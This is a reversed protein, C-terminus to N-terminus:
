DGDKEERSENRERQKEVVGKDREKWSFSL